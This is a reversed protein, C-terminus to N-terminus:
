RRKDEVRVRIKRPQQQPVYAVGAILLVSVASLTIILDM